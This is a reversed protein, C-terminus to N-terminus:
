LGDFPPIRLVASGAGTRFKRGPIGETTFWGGSTKVYLTDPHKVFSFVDGVKLYGFVTNGGARIAATFGAATVAM